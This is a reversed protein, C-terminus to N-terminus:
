GLNNGYPPIGRKQEESLTNVLVIAQRHEEATLPLSPTWSPLTSSDVVANKLVLSANAKKLYGAMKNIDGTTM